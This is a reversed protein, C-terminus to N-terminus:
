SNQGLEEEEGGLATSRRIENLRVIPVIQEKSTAEEKSCKISRYQYAKRYEKILM